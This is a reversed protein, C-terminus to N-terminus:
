HAEAWNAGWGLDVKLEVALRYVGEMESRVREAFPEVQKEPVEFVLEDHVQLIMLADPHEADLMAQVKLMALKILDAATGQIPTNLAVREAAERAVRDSSNITPLFRRRGLLTTVYGKDRAGALNAQQFAAIGAYRGLYKSIIEQAESNSVGQERALRFASMGYLVGFNVTKARARMAKTVEGPEVEFLRSATQTHVDLGQSLDQLLLPDQSLHALVRLEIQAEPVFCERIRLGLDSRVPINQLNPDSSSLRGTATVAQNFSTHVRGTEPHVLAPLTDVYTGKIKTLTRYNLVEAPLPHEAALITLVTVDTSYGTKKKTKKVQTLGLEEFLVKALQSPSNLNFKHGALKYCTDEIRALQEALEKSLDNLAPVDLKVGNMELQALLPVLPMELDTFLPELGAEELRPELVESAQWAVDADEAAYPTAQDLSAFAFSQNKGGTAEEYSIVGRGLFEAAIAALGHSTKGPNLLYSAVMTDFAINKLPAGARTLVIHDYKLNQGVKAVKADACLPKLLKLAEDRAMQKEGDPLQHGVPVYVAEASKCCLSFGVLEAEMADISTTETDISVRGKKEAQAIIKKLEAPDTVLRYDGEGKKAEPAFQKVLSSFELQALVPTLVEPDPEEFRFAEPVFKVPADTALKALKWSMRADDAHAILNERMKSKKMDPAATLLDELDQHDELLKAAKKPGVGPVGPINDASDGTLAQFDVVREPGVGLKDKVEAPGYRLDKMTDWLTVNDDVLQYLDKDGSVLVVKYGQEEAQRALTAMLDDAEYGEMEMAPLGLATVVQRVLPFQTKLAPDLPPRNAKYPKYMQHRFTPGKADYIVGVYEPQADALVKLVMQVFGYVAGTPVGGSTSLNKIAHFARHIYSSADLLYLTPKTAM